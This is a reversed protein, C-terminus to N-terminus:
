PSPSVEPSSGTSEILYDVDQPTIRVNSVGSPLSKLHLTLKDAENQMLEEYTFALVFNDATVDKVRVSGARFTVSAHSPFTRLRYDPPFNLGIIPVQLTKEVYFDVSIEVNVEDPEYKVGRISMLNVPRSASKSLGTLSLAQTYAYRMTDLVSAPAYVDVSDPTVSISQIYTQASPLFTGQPRVPLRYCLGRNYYFELTDPRIGQIQTTAVLQHQVMRLVEAPAIQGRGSVAGNDYDRFDFELPHMTRRRWQYGVLTTGKDRVSVYINDPLPTTIRVNDPVGTLVLPIDIETEFTDRLETVFWFSASIVLCLFFM